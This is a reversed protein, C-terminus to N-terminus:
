LVDAAEQADAGGEALALERHTHTMRKMLTCCSPRGHEVSDGTGAEAM